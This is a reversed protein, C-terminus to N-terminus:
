RQYEEDYEPWKMIDSLKNIKRSLWWAWKTTLWASSDQEEDFRKRNNEREEEDKIENAVVEKIKIEKDWFASPYISKYVSMFSLLEQSPLLFMLNYYSTKIFGDGTIEWQFLWAEIRRYIIWHWVASDIRFKTFQNYDLVSSPILSIWLLQATASRHNGNTTVVYCHNWDPGYLKSTSIIDWENYASERGEYWISRIKDSIQEITWQRIEQFLNDRSFSGIILDPNIMQKTHNYVNTQPMYDFDRVVVQSIYQKINKMDEIMQSLNSDVSDKWYIPYSWIETYFEPDYSSQQLISKWKKQYPDVFSVHQKKFEKEKLWLLLSLFYTGYEKELPLIHDIHELQFTSDDYYFCKTIEYCYLFSEPLSHKDFVAFLRDLDCHWNILEWAGRTFLLKVWWYDYVKEIRTLIYESNQKLIYDFNNIWRAKIIQGATVWSFRRYLYDITENDWRDFWFFEFWDDKNSPRYTKYFTDLPINDLKNLFELCRDKDWFLGLYVGRLDDLSRPRYFDWDMLSSILQQNTGQWIDMSHVKQYDEGFNEM